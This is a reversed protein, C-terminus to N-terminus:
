PKKEMFHGILGEVVDVIEKCEKPVEMEVKILEM